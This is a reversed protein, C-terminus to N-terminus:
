NVKVNNQPTALPQTPPTAPKEPKEYDSDTLSRFATRDIEDVIDCIDKASPDIARIQFSAFVKSLSLLQGRTFSFSFKAELAKATFQRPAQGQDPGVPGQNKPDM